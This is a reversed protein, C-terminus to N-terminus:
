NPRGEDYGFYRGFSGTIWILRLLLTWAVMIGGIVLYGTANLTQLDFFGRLWPHLLVVVYLPIMLMALIAPRWDNAQEEVVAFWKTPPAAFLVLILGGLV